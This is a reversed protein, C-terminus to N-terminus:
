KQMEATILGPEIFAGFLWFKGKEPNTLLQAQYWPWRGLGRIFQVPGKKIISVPAGPDLLGTRVSKLSPRKRMSVGTANVYLSGVANTWTFSSQSYQLQQKPAPINRILDGTTPYCWPRRTYSIKKRLIQMKPPMPQNESVASTIVPRGNKWYANWSINCPALGNKMVLASGFSYFLRGSCDYYLCGNQAPNGSKSVQWVARRLQRRTNFFLMVQVDLKGKKDPILRGNRIVAKFERIEEKGKEKYVAALKRRTDQCIGAAFPLAPIMLILICASFKRNM